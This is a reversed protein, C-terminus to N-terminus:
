QESHQNTEEGEEHPTNFRAIVAMAEIRLAEAQVTDSQLKTLEFRKKAIEIQDDYWKLIEERTPEAPIEQDLVPEGQTKMTILKQNIIYL